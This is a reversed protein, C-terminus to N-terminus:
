RSVARCPPRGDAFGASDQRAIQADEATASGTPARVLRFAGSIPTIEGREHKELTTVPEDIDEQKHVVAARAFTTARRSNVHEGRLGSWRLTLWWSSSAGIVTTGGDEGIEAAGDALADAQRALGSTLCRRQHYHPRRKARGAVTLRLLGAAQAVGDHRGLHAREGASRLRPSFDAM